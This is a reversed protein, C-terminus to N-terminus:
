SSAEPLYDFKRNMLKLLKGIALSHLNLVTCVVLKTHQEPWQRGRRPNPESSNPFRPETEEPGLIIDIADGHCHVQLYATHLLRLFTTLAVVLSSSILSCHSPSNALSSLLYVSLTTARCRCCHSHPILTGDFQMPQTLPM